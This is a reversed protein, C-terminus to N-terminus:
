SLSTLHNLQCQSAAFAAGPYIWYLRGAEVKYFNMIGFIAQNLRESRSVRHELNPKIDLFRTITDVIGGIVIRGKTSVAASYL